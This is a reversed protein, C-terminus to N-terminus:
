KKNEFNYKLINAKEVKFSNKKERGQFREFVYSSDFNFTFIIMLSLNKREQNNKYRKIYLDALVGSMGMRENRYLFSVYEMWGNEKLDSMNGVICGLIERGTTLAM